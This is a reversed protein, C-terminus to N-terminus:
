HQYIEEANEDPQPREFGMWFDDLESASVIQNNAGDGKREALRNKLLSKSASLYILEPEVGHKRCVARMEDRKSRRCLTSDVVVNYGESLKKELSILLESFILMFIKKKEDRTKQTLTEGYNEWALEDAALRVFGENQLKRSYVTKGSGSIGCMLVVRQKKEM